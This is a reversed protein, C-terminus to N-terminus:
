SQAGATIEIIENTIASQRSKNYQLNLDFALKLANDSATKMALRRAAHESANAELIFHYVQMFFLHSVLKELVKEASPEILYGEPKKNESTFDIKNERMLDAFKGSEPVIEKVTKKISEFSIPLLNRTLSEQRLASRFHTSFVIVSDWKKQVYGESLFDALPKVQEPTTFDGVHVFKKIIDVGKKQLYSYTKEGVAVFQASSPSGSAIFQEFKRFLQSNFAGALGKDSAVLVFLTKQAQGSSTSPNRKKLLPLAKYNMKSVNALLDLVAFAYPRSDLAIQQSKRMKTAAVLEMARTIQNINNVSKLRKKINQTSEMKSNRCM